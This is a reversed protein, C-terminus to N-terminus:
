SVCVQCVGYIEFKHGTVQFDSLDTTINEMPCANIEKTKGCKLCILHHHHEKTPCTFRFKKEGELETEELIDLESFTSLNRYITDFSLGPYNEKLSDQVEKASLYRKEDSFLQLLDRRKDTYKFGNKKLLDMATLVDM